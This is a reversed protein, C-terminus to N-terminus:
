CRGNGHVASLQDNEDTLLARVVDDAHNDLREHTFVTQTSEQDFSTKGKVNTSKFDKLQDSVISVKFGNEQM